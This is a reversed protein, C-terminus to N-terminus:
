SGPARKLISASSSNLFALAEDDPLRLAIEAM